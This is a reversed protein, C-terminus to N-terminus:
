DWRQKVSEENSIKVVLEFSSNLIDKFYDSMAELLELGVSEKRSAFSVFLKLRFDPLVCDDAAVGLEDNLGLTTFLLHAVLDM